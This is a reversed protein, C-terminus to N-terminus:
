WGSGNQFKAKRRSSSHSRSNPLYRVCKRKKRSRIRPREATEARGTAQKEGLHPIPDQIQYIDSV